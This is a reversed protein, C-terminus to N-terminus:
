GCTVKERSDVNVNLDLFVLSGTSDLEELTSELNPHSKNSAKHLVAPNKGSFELWTMRM